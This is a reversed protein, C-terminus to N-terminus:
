AFPHSLIVQNPSVMDVATHFALGEVCIGLDGGGEMKTWGKWCRQRCVGELGWAAVFLQHHYPVQMPLQRVQDM